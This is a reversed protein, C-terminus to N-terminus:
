MGELGLLCRNNAAHPFGDVSNVPHCRPSLIQEFKQHPYFWDFCIVDICRYPLNEKTFVFFDLSPM